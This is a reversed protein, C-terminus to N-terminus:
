QTLFYIVFGLSLALSLALSFRLVLRKENRIMAKQRNGNGIATQNIM